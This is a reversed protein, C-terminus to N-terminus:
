EKVEFEDFNGIDLKGNSLLKIGKKLHSKAAYATNRTPRLMIELGDKDQSKVRYAHFFAQLIETLAEKDEKECVDQLTRDYNEQCFTDLHGLHRKRTDLTEKTVGGGKKTKKIAEKLEDDIPMPFNPM